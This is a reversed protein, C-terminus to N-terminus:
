RSAGPPTSSAPSCKLSKMGPVTSHRCSPHQESFDIRREDERPRRRHHEGDRRQCRNPRSLWSAIEFVDLDALAALDQADREDTRRAAVHNRVRADIEPDVADDGIEIDIKAGATRQRSPQPNDGFVPRAEDFEIGGRADIFGADDRAAGVGPERGADFVSEIRWRRDGSLGRGGGRLDGRRRGGNAIVAGGALARARDFLAVVHREDARDNERRARDKALLRRAADRVQRLKRRGLPGIAGKGLRGARRRRESSPAVRWSNQRPNLPKGGAANVLRAFM